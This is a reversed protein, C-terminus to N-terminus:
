GGQQKKHEQVARSYPIAGLAAGVGIIAGGVAGGIGLIGFSVIAGAVAGAVIYALQTGTPKPNAM